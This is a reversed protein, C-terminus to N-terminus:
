TLLKPINCVVSEADDVLQIMDKKKRNWKIQKVEWEDVRTRLDNIEKLRSQIEEDLQNERLNQEQLQKM